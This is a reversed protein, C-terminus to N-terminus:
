YTKGLGPAFSKEKKLLVGRQIAHKGFKECINSIEEEIKQEKDISIIESFMDLQVGVNGEKLHTARLGVSRCPLAGNEKFLEMAAKALALATSAGREMTVSYEATKLQTDRVSLTVGGAYMDYSRLRQAVEEAYLLLERWVDDYTFLDCSLTRSRGISKPRDTPKPTCVPSNEEGMVTRFLATGNKGLLMKLVGEDCGAIDGITTIGRSKLKQATSKGVFILDSAPLSYIKEKYNERSIVTVADPKKMDSGLKAFIKNFSVGVSATIELENKIDQRIRRAIQEGDGFLLRSGTVDLWCEDMGFPEVMDTYRHYIERAAKSFESYKQYLPPLIYLDPCKQKASWIPEATKVGFKKAIENKALIIGHRNEVSGAVAVPEAMLTQNYLLSVSAFFNNLDCHLITRDAM